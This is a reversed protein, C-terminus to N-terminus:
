ATAGLRCWAMLSCWASMFIIFANGLNYLLSIASCGIFSSCQLSLEPPWCGASKITVPPNVKKCLCREIYCRAQPVTPKIRSFAGAVQCSGSTVFSFPRTIIQVFRGNVWQPRTVDHPSISRPWCHSLYHSTAQRCWTIVQALTSKM